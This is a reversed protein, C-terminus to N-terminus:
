HRKKSSRIAKNQLGYKGIAGKITELSYTGIRLRQLAIQIFLIGAGYLKAEMGFHNKFVRPLHYGAAWDSPSYERYQKYEKLYIELSEVKGELAVILNGFAELTDEALERPSRHLQLPNGVWLDDATLKGQIKKTAKVLSGLRRIQNTAASKKSKDALWNHTKQCKEFEVALKVRDLKPPIVFKKKTAVCKQTTAKLIDEVLAPTVDSYKRRRKSIKDKRRRKSTAATSM